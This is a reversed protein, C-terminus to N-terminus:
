LGVFEEPMAPDLPIHTFGMRISSIIPYVVVMGVLVVSPALLAWALRGERQSVSPGRRKSAALVPAM